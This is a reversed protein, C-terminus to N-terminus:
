KIVEQFNIAYQWPSFILITLPKEDSFRFTKCFSFVPTKNHLCKITSLMITIKQREHTKSDLTKPTEKKFYSTYLSLFGLTANMESQLIESSFVIWCLIIFLHDSLSLNITLKRSCLYLDFLASFWFIKLCFCACTNVPGLVHM